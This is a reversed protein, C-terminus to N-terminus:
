AEVGTLDFGALGRLAARLSEVSPLGSLGQDTQYVRCSIGPGAVSPFLDQGAAIFSPSGQFNLAAVDAESTIEM